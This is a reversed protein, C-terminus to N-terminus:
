ASMNIFYPLPAGTLLEKLVETLKGMSNPKVLFHAAGLEMLEDAEKSHSSTTYIVAPVNRLMPRKKIEALCERGSMFPMNLDIFIYDPVDINNLSHLAEPGNKATLCVAEARARELAISFIDRDDEDDDILYVVPAHTGPANLRNSIVFILKKM